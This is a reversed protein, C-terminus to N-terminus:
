QSTLYSLASAYTPYAYILEAVQMKTIGFRMALSFININEEAGPGYLHAGLLRGTGKESIIKGYAPQIGAISFVTWHSMDEMVVDISLKQRRAKEETMGVTAVPPVTFVASPVSSLDAKVSDGRLFNQAVVGGEYSAVPSLQKKGHADGAAFVRHNSPSRLYENVVVGKASYKVGAAELNLHAINAPRGAANLIFDAAITESSKLKIQYTDKEPEVREIEAREHLIMGLSKSYEVLKTAIEQELDRLVKDSHMLLHVSAGLRAFVQGFEFAVVGSGIITLTKPIRRLELIDDSSSVYEAGPFTLRRPISGTAVVVGSFSLTRGNAELKDNAVFRPPAKIYHVGAKVLSQETNVTVPDTFRHKRTIVANWDIAIKGASIGHEGAHRLEELVEAARVLVKKPNCGRLSCLGGIPTPDILAVKKGARAIQKSATLGANGGGLAIFDFHEM